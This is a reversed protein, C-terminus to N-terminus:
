YNEGWKRKTKAFERELFLIGAGIGLMSLFIIVLDM